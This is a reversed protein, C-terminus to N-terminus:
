TFPGWPGCTCRRRCGSRLGSAFRPREGLAALYLPWRRLDPQSEGALGLVLAPGVAHWSNLLPRLFVREAHLMGRAYEFTSALLIGGMVAFPVTGTPLVFLMPVLILQTPVASGSGVEFDLRFAVAYAGILLAVSAAAPSRDSPILAALLGAVGLFLAASVVVTVRDRSALRSLRRARQEEIVRQADPDLAPSTTHTM